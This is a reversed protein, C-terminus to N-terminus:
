LTEESMKLAKALLEKAGREIMKEALARGLM